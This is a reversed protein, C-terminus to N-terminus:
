KKVVKDERLSKILGENRVTKSNKLMIKPNKTLLSIYEIFGADVKSNEILFKIVEYDAKRDVTLRIHSFDYGNELNIKKFIPNNRIYLTVHERESSLVAKQAAEELAQRKFIEIDMGDPYTEKEINSAYDSKTKIFLAIVEDIVKPDILPCDGTVRVVNKFGPYKLICKFYRDLVDNESGRFCDAGIKKCLKETADDEENDTTAIVVKDIKKAQSVRLFVNELLTRGNAKLLIKGPLRSSNMRAQIICITKIKEM